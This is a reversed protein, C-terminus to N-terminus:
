LSSQVHHIVVAGHMIRNTNSSTMVGLVTLRQLRPKHQLFERKQSRTALTIQLGTCQCRVLSKVSTIDPVHRCVPTFSKFGSHASCPLTYHPDPQIAEDADTLAMATYM